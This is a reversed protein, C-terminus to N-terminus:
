ARPGDPRALLASLAAISEETMSEQYRYYMESGMPTVWSTEVQAQCRKRLTELEKMLAGAAVRDQPTALVADPPLSKIQDRTLPPNTLAKLRSELTM